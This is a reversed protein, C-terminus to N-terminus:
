GGSLEEGGMVDVSSPERGECEAHGGWNRPGTDREGGRIGATSFTKFCFDRQPTSLLLLG